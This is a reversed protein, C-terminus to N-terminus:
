LPFGAGLAGNFFPYNIVIQNVANKVLPCWLVTVNYEMQYSYSFPSDCEYLGNSIANTFPTFINYYKSTFTLSPVGGVTLVSGNM